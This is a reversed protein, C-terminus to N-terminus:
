QKLDNERRHIRPSSGYLKKYSRYFSSYNSFGALSAAESLSKGNKILDSAFSFRKNTIYQHVTLGTAAQFIHCLHYKSIFFKKELSDLTIPKEFNSNIYRIVRKLQTDASDDDSYTKINSVLYLIETIVSRAIPTDCDIHNATYKGLRMFADYLGSSKVTEADIKTNCAASPEVFGKEYEECNCVRFFEPSVNLVFRSYKAVSNHYARHMQNKRIVIVDGPSLFYVNEEVIYRTDGEIFLFIEYNDHVHLMFNDNSPKETCFLDSNFLNNMLIVM